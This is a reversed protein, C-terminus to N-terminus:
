KGSCLLAVAGTDQTIATGITDTRASHDSTWREKLARIAAQAEARDQELEEQSREPVTISSEPPAMEREPLLRRLTSHFYQSPTTRIRGAHKAEKTQSIALFVAERCGAELAGAGCVFYFRINEPQGIEEAITVALGNAEALQEHTLNWRRHKSPKATSPEANKRGPTKQGVNVNVTKNIGQSQNTDPDGTDPEASMPRHGAQRVNPEAAENQPDETAEGDTSSEDGFIQLGTVPLIQYVNNAWRGGHVTSLRAKRITIIPRGQFRYALLEQIRENVRQRYIGLDKAMRAQSPYCLGREDMYTALACLTRWRRDGIDALLGSDRAEFYMKVFMRKERNGTTVDIENQVEVTLLPKRQFGGFDVDHGSSSVSRTSM